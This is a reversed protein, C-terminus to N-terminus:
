GEPSLINARVEVSSEPQAPDNSMLHVKRMIPGTLDPGHAGSDFSITLVGSGGAPITMPDLAASTCGCSTTVREVVLPGDGTNNVVVERTVVDGNVVDGLELAPVDFSIAPSGGALVGGGCGAAVLALLALALFMVTQKKM